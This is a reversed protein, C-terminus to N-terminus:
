FYHLEFISYLEYENFLTSEFLWPIFYLSIDFLEM